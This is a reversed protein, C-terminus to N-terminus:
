ISLLVAVDAFDIQSGLRGAHFLVGRSGVGGVRAM